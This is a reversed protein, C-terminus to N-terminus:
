RRAPPRGFQSLERRLQARQDPSLERPPPVAGPRYAQVAQRLPPPPQAPPVAPASGISAGALAAVLDKM